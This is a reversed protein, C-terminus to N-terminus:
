EAQLTKTASASYASGIHHVVIVQWQGGSPLDSRPLMFGCAYYSPGILIDSKRAITQYGSKTLRLKCYGPSNQQLIATVKIDGDSQEARTIRPQEPKIDTNGSGDGTNTSGSYDPTKPPLEAGGSNSYNEDEVQEPQVASTQDISQTLEENSLGGNDSQWLAFVVGGTALMLAVALIVSLRRNGTKQKIANM